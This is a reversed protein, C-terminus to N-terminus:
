LGFLVIKGSFSWELLFPESGRLILGEMADRHLINFNVAGYLLRVVRVNLM